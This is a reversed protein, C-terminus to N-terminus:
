FNSMCNPKISELKLVLEDWVREQVEKGEESTVFASPAGTGCDTMYQGHSAADQSAAHVLTRSGVETSRALVLKILWFALTPFDRGLESHCLGPNVCNFTVPLTSVPYKEALARVCFVGLLKSVPYQENWHKEAFARDNVTTLIKGNPASKQPLTTHAHVDSSVISFMPRTNYLRATSKLKPVVLAALLFTSIFNVTISAENDEAIAYKAPAIGANAIFIDVRDLEANVRAAFSEVSAYSAMDVQWVQIVDNACSTTTEIDVKASNGKDLNRVALIIKGAGMRAFHRAAEKGLGVNSGTIVITKGNYSGTPYPLQKFLQSYLFGM